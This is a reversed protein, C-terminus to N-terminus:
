FILEFWKLFTAQRTSCPQHRSISFFYTNKFELHLDLDVKTNFNKENSLFLDAVTEDLKNWLKAVNGGKQQFVFEIAKKVSYGHKFINDSISAIDQLFKRADSVVYKDTNEPDFPYYPEKCFRLHIDSDFRYVRLPDFSSVAFYVSFDMAHGDVLLPREMFHQYFVDSTGFYIDSINVLKVGRNDFNKVVFRADPNKKVFIKFEHLEAPFRFGQLLVENHRNYTSLWSKDTLYNMGPIHNIKQHPKLPKVIKDYIEKNKLAERIYPYEIMWLVDWDDDEFGNVTEFGLRNFVNSTALLNGRPIWNYLCVGWYKPVKTGINQSIPSSNYNKAMGFIFSTVVALFFILLLSSRNMGFNIKVKEVRNCKLNKNLM